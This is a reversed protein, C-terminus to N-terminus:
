STLRKLIAAVRGGDAKDGVVAKAKGMLQGFPLSKDVIPMLLASIEDDSLQAPLFAELIVLEKQEKEALEPRNGKEFALISEKRSKASKKIVSMVDEDTLKTDAESGYKAIAESQIAALLFRLTSLRVADGAKLSALMDKQITAKLTSM